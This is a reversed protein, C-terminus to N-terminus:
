PARRITFKLTAFGDLEFHQIRVRHEGGGLKVTRSYTQPGSYKWEDVIRKGDLEARIGDDATFDLVYTGAPVRFTGAAETAFHDANVKANPARYWAYALESVSESFDPAQQLRAAFEAGQTRPDQTDKSYNWFNVTWSQPVRFESWGFGFPRGAPTVVGRYDTAQAGLYELEFGLDQAGPAIEFVHQGPVAGGSATARGGRVSKVRFSGKPGLVDFFVRNGERRREWVIPSKFDYPGWQDVLIFRRGRLQGPKLSPDNGGAVPKVAYPKAAPLPEGMMKWGVGFRALYAQTTTETAVLTNGSPQMTPASPTYKPDKEANPGPSGMWARYMALADDTVKFRNEAQKMGSLKPGAHLVETVREVTNNEFAFNRVGDLRLAYNALDRFLNGKVLYDRNETDRHKPYGWNPDQSANQWLRIAALDKIFTNGVISINQGHEIAIAEANLGFVNGAFVTDYSYGGWVGHWCELMLNHAYTNRSFTTEIGNTPAHSFDNGFVVNDNCGGQGTDMTSQGAWLFFGDGGHTVSNYAIINKSSQEYILIGASDQGRNYVGHSYGRVCWDINNHMVRNSSSKYLGIGLASLFSFDCNYVEGGSSETLMLGNSGGRVTVNRLKFDATQKLYLGAGFEKWQDKQNDHFSMWDGLDERERSSKLKPKYNYSLDSDLIKLGRAGRAELGIKYGHVALNRVTVNKGTVVIGTGKRADPDATASTGRLTVGRFDLDLNDGSIQIPGSLKYTGAKIRVSSKIEMGAKPVVSPPAVLAILLVTSFGM